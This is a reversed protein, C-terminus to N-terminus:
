NASVTFTLTDTYEGAAVMDYALVKFYLRYRKEGTVTWPASTVVSVVSGAALAVLEGEVTLSYPVPTLESPDANLLVSGNSSLVSVSYNTNSRVILDLSGDSGENMQGFDVLQSTSAPNFLGDAQVVVIETYGQVNVSMNFLSSEIFSPLSGAQGGYLAVSFSGTYTGAPVIAGGLVAVTFPHDVNLNRTGAPFFGSQFDEPYVGDLWATLVRPPQVSPDFLEYALPYAPDPGNLVRGFGESEYSLAYEIDVATNKMRITAIAETPNDTRPDYSLNNVQKPSIRNIEQAGGQIFGAALLLVLVLQKM